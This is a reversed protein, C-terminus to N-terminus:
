EVKKFKIKEVIYGILVGLSYVIVLFILSSFIHLLFVAINTDPIKLWASIIISIIFVVGYPVGLYLIKSGCMSPNSTVSDVFGIECNLIGIIGIVLLIVGIIIGIITGKKTYSLNKFGM